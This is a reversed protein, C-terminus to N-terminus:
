NSQFAVNKQQSQSDLIQTEFTKKFVKFVSIQVESIKKTLFVKFVLNNFGVEVARISVCLKPPAICVACLM